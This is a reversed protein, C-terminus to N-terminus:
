NQKSLSGASLVSRQQVAGSVRGGIGPVGDFAVDVAVAKRPAVKQIIDVRAGTPVVEKVHGHIVV